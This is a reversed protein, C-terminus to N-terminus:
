FTINQFNYIKSHIENKLFIIEIFYKLLTFLINLYFGIFFIYNAIFCKNEVNIKWRNFYRRRKIQKKLIATTYCLHMKRFIM